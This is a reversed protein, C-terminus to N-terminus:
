TMASSLARDLYARYKEAWELAECVEYKTPREWCEPDGCLMWLTSAIRHAHKFEVTEEFRQRAM